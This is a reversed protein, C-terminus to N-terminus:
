HMVPKKACMRDELIRRTVKSIERLSKCGEILFEIDENTLLPMMREDVRLEKAYDLRTKVIAQAYGKADPEGALIVEFRSLLPKPIVALSNATAIWNRTRRPSLM